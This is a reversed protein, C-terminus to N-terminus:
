CKKSKRFRALKNMLIRFFRDLLRKRRKCNELKLSIGKNRNLACSNRPPRGIMNNGSHVRSNNNKNIISNSDKKVKSDEYRLILLLSIM